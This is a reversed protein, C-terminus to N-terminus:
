QPNKLHNLALRAAARQSDVHTQASQQWQTGDPLIITTTFVTTTMIHPARTYMKMCLENLQSKENMMGDAANVTGRHLIFNQRNRETM